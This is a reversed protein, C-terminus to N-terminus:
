YVLHVPNHIQLLGSFGTHLDTLLGDLRTQPVATISKFWYLFRNTFWRFRNRFKYHVQYVLKHIQLLGNLGIDLDTRLGDLGTKPNTTLM